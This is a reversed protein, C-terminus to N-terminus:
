SRGSVAISWLDGPALLDGEGASMDVVILIVHTNVVRYSRYGFQRGREELSYDGGAEIEARLASFSIADSQVSFAAKLADPIVVGHVLRHAQVTVGECCGAYLAFEVIGYDLRLSKGNRDVVCENGLAEYIDETSSGVGVGAVTGTVAVNSLFGIVTM